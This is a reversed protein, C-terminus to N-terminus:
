RPTFNANVWAEIVFPLGQAADRTVGGSLQNARTLRDVIDDGLKRSTSADTRASADIRLYTKGTM